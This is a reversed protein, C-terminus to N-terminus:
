IAALCGGTKRHPQEVRGESTAPRHFLPPPSTVHGLELFIPLLWSRCRSGKPDPTFPEAEHIREKKETFNFHYYVCKVTSLNTKFIVHAGYSNAFEGKGLFLLEWLISRLGATKAAGPFKNSICSRLDWGLDVSDFVRPNPGITQTKVWGGSSVSVHQFKLIVEESEQRKAAWLSLGLHLFSRENDRLRADARRM